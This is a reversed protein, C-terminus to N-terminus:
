SKESEDSSEGGPKKKAAKKAENAAKKEKNDEIKALRKAQQEDFKKDKKEVKERNEATKTYVKGGKTIYFFEKLIDMVACIYTVINDVLALIIKANNGFKNYQIIIPRVNEAYEAPDDHDIGMINIYSKTAGAELKEIDITSAKNNPSLLDILSENTKKVFAKVQEDNYVKNVCVKEIDKYRYDSDIKKYNDFYKKDGMLIYCYGFQMQNITECIYKPNYKTKIKNKDFIIINNIIDEANPIDKGFNTKSLLEKYNSQINPKVKDINKCHELIEEYEADNLNIGSDGVANKISDVADDSKADINLINSLISNVKKNNMLVDPKKGSPFADNDIRTIWLSAFKEIFKKDSKFTGNKKAKNIYRRVERQTTEVLTIYKKTADSVENQIFKDLLGKGYKAKIEKVVESDKEDPKMLNNWKDEIKTGAVMNNREKIVSAIKKGGAVGLAAGGAAVLAALITKAITGAKSNPQKIGDIFKTVASKYETNNNIENNISETTSKDIKKLKGTILRFLSMIMRPITFLIKNLTSKGENQKKVDKKWTDFREGEQIISFDGLNESDGNYNETIMEIKDYMSLLSQCGEMESEAVIIDVDYISDLTERVADM